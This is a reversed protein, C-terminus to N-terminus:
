DAQKLPATRGIVHLDDIFRIPRSEEFGESPWKEPLETSEHSKWGRSGRKVAIVLRQSTKGLISNQRSDNFLPTNGHFTVRELNMSRNFLSDGIRELSAPFEVNRLKKCYSFASNGIRRLGHEIRVEALSDCYRFANADIEVVNGPILVRMLNKSSTFAGKGIIRVFSPVTVCSETRPFFVLTKMDKTYLAGDKEVYVPNTKAATVKLLRPCVM